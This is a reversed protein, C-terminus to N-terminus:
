FGPLAFIEKKEDFGSLEHFGLSELKICCPLAAFAKTFLLPRGLPKTLLQVRSAENVAPGIVTFDLRTKSGVNGFTVQGVHLAFGARLQGVGAPLAEPAIATLRAHAEKVGQVVSSALQNTYIPDETALPFLALMGDGILKNIDAGRAEWPEAVAEYYHSLVSLLDASSLKNSMRTFSRLDAFAIIANMTEGHARRITGAEVRAAAHGGLYTRLLTSMMRRTHAVEIRLAILPVIGGIIALDTSSFGGAQKTAFSIFHRSGDTFPLGMAVYDTAGQTKLWGVIPFDEVVGDGILRRRIAQVGGHIVPMPGKLYEDNRYNAYSENMVQLEQDDRWILNRGWVQPHSDSLALTIRFVMVGTARMERALGQLFAEDQWSATAEGLLWGRLRAEADARVLGEPEPRDAPISPELGM